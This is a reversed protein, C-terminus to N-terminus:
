FAAQTRLAVSQYDQGVQAGAPPTPVGAGFATGGPSLRDVDVDQVQLSLRVVPNLYWNVGATWISQEGGLVADAPQAGGAAGANHNLDMHSYRLGLEWAGWQRARFDFPKDPRPGDFGASTTAYRRAEGTVIWSGQVYWGSFSPDSLATARRDLDIRVYESQLYLNRRQAGFEVGAARLGEADINGTDILRTGDVRLEPRDRLRLAYRAGAADPGADAPEFVVSTNVGLHTLWGDGRAPVVAARGILGLQEDFGQVGILSGTVAASASWREGSAYLAAATRGDGGAISRVIESASARELFLSGTNAVVEELGTPPAFAGVRLRVPQLGSYQVWFDNIRGGEEVGSGGFEAILAYDFDGFAKGEVGIRARRFNAGSNLDRAHAAEVADGFSGRRFDTAPPGAADQSYHATDLQVVGRLAASFRRDATQLTPRGNELSATVAGAGPAPPAAPAAATHAPPSPAAARAAKLEAVEAALARIQAELAEIRRTEADNGAQANAGGAAASLMAAAAGALWLERRWPHRDKRARRM